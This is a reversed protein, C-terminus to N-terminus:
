QRAMSDKTNVVGSGGDDFYINGDKIKVISPGKNKGDSSKNNKSCLPSTNLDKPNGVSWDGYGCGATQSNKNAFDVNADTLITGTNGVFTIAIPMTADANPAGLKYTGTEEIRNLMAGGCNPASFTSRSHIFTSSSFKVYERSSLNATNPPIGINDSGGGGGNNNNNNNVTSNAASNAANADQISQAMAASQRNAATDDCQITLGTLVPSTCSDATFAYVSSTHGTSDVFICGPTLRIERNEGGSNNIYDSTPNNLFIDFTNTTTPISIITSTKETGNQFASASYISTLNNLVQFRAPTQSTCTVSTGSNRNLKITSITKDAGVSLTPNPSVLNAIYLTDSVNSNGSANRYWFTTESSGAAIINNDSIVTSCASDSFLIGYPTNNRFQFNFQAGRPITVQKGQGDKIVVRYPTCVGTALFPITDPGQIEVKQTPPPLGVNTTTNSNSSGDGTSNYGGNGSAYCQSWVGVLPNSADAKLVPPEATPKNVPETIKTQTVALQFTGFKDTQFQVTKSGITLQDRTIIGISYTPVGDTVKMWKYMVVLNDNDSNALAFALSTGSVPISLTFPNTAQVNQSPVFSVSPGAATASNGGLGLQQTTDSSALTEGSGITINLNIGLAGPPLAIASGSLDGSTARLVQTATSHPDITGTYNGASDATAALEFSGKAENTVKQKMFSDGCRVLLFPAFVIATAILKHSLLKLYTRSM